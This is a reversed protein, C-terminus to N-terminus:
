DGSIERNLTEFAEKAARQEASKKSSALGTGLARDGVVATITFRKDHDPGSEAVVEYAPQPWSQSQTLELLLSKYNDPTLALDDLDVAELLTRQVFERAAALGHDKYIAGILAEYADSLISRNTRGAARAMNDSLQIHGGLGISRACSALTKGNVLRARLKTLFGEDKDPYRSFLAEAVVLGLIADGLFELRENSIADDDEDQLASRHKLAQRYWGLDTPSQGTLEAFRIREAVADRDAPSSAGLRVWKM